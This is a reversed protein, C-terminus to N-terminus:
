QRGLVKEQALALIREVQEDISLNSTDIEVADHAKTLPSVARTSDKRDREELERAMVDVAVTSSGGTEMLRRRAREEISAVLFIKLEADPFVVTGIDRGDM